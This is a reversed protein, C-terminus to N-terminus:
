VRIRKGIPPSRTVHRPDFSVLERPFCCSLSEVRVHDPRAGQIPPLNTPGAPTLCIRKECKERNKLQSVVITSEAEGRLVTVTEPCCCESNGKPWENLAQQGEAPFDARKFISCVNYQTITLLIPNILSYLKRTNETKYKVIL